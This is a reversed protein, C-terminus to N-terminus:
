DQRVVSIHLEIKVSDGVAVGGTEIRQNWNIGFLKRSIVTTASFAAHQKADGDRIQGLYEAALVIPQTMGRITLDGAITFQDSGTLEVKTSAFTITPWHEADLFDASRLHNDRAQNNTTISQADIRAEVTASDIHAGDWHITGDFRQFAGKVTAILLHRVSFEVSSHANDITWTTVAGAKEVVTTSSTNM